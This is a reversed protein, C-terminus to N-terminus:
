GGSSRCQVSPFNEQKKAGKAKQIKRARLELLLLQDRRMIMGCCGLIWPQCYNGMFRELLDQRDRQLPGAKRM